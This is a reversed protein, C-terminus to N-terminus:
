FGSLKFSQPGSKWQEGTISFSLGDFVLDIMDLVAYSRRYARNFASEQKSDLLTREFYGLDIAYHIGFLKRV